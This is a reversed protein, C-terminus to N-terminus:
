YWHTPHSSYCTECPQGRFEAMSETLDKVGAITSEPDSIENEYTIQLLFFRFLLKIYVSSEVSRIDVFVLFPVSQFCWFIVVGASIGHAWKIKSWQRLRASRSTILFHDVTSLWVCTATIGSCTTLIYQRCKCWPFSLVTFDKYFGVALIRSVGAIFLQLSCSVTAILLFFTCPQTRYMRTTSLVIISMVGGFFSLCLVPIGAYCILM